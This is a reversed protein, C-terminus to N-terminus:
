EGALLAELEPEDRLPELDPEERLWSRECGREVAERLWELADSRHRAAEAAPLGEEASRAAALVGELYPALASAPHLERARAYDARAEAYRAARAEPAGALRGRAARLYGRVLFAGAFAGDLGLARDLAAVGDALVEDGAEGSRAYAAVFLGRLFHLPASDPRAGAVQDLEELVRELDVVEQIQHVKPWVKRLVAPDLQVARGWDLVGPVFRGLKLLCRARALAAEASEPALAAARELAALAAELEEQGEAEATRRAGEALAAEAAGAVAAELEVIAAAAAAAEEPREVEEALRRRLELIARAAALVAVPAGEADPPPSAGGVLELAEAPRGAAALARGRGLTARLAEAPGGALALARGWAEAAGEADGGAGLVEGMLAWARWLTPDLELARRAFALAAGRDAGALLEARALPALPHLPDLTQARSLARDALLQREVSPARRLQELLRRGRLYFGAAESQGRALDRAEALLSRARGEEGAERALRALGVRGGALAPEAKVAAEFATRARRARRAEATEDPDEGEVPGEDAAVLTRLGRLLHLRALLAEGRAGAPRAAVAAAAADLAGAAKPDGTGLAIQAQGALAEAHGPVLELARAFAGRALELRQQQLAKAGRRVAEPEPRRGAALLGARVELAASVDDTAQLAVFGTAALAAARDAPDAADDDAVRGYAEVAGDYDLAATRARGLALWGPTYSPDRVTAVECDRVAEAPRRGAVWLAGRGAYAEAREPELHIAETLDGHALDYRGLGTRARGRVVLAGYRDGGMAGEAAAAADAYRGEALARRAGALPDGAEQGGAVGLPAALTSALLLPLVRARSV